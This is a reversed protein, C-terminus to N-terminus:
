VGFIAYHLYFARFVPFRMQRATLNEKKLRLSAFFHLTRLSIHVFPTGFNHLPERLCCLRNLRKSREPKITVEM